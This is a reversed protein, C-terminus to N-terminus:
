KRGASADKSELFRSTYFKCSSATLKFLDHVPEEVIGMDRAISFDKRSGTSGGCNQPVENSSETGPVLQFLQPSSSPDSRYGQRGFDM